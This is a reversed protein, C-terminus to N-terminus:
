PNDWAVLEWGAEYIKLARVTEINADLWALHALWAPRIGLHDFVLCPFRGHGAAQAKMEIDHLLEATPVGVMPYAQLKLGNPLDAAVARYAGIGEITGGIREIELVLKGALDLQRTAISRSRLRETRRAVLNVTPEVLEENGALDTTQLQITDSMSLKRTPTHGPWVLRLIQIGKTLSRGLEQSTWKSRFYDPTDLMIVVDCDVLRHWLMEQFPNGPRIDHTDLFVDFGRASLEDHLQVAVARSETRRYSVFVRRQRHLLGLCELAVAFPADLASDAPDLFCANLAAITAPLVAEPREGQRVVPIIPVKDAELADILAQDRTADGGFYLAVLSAERSRAACNSHDRLAIEVGLTLKFDAAVAATRARLRDLETPSVAGLVILEYFPTADSM